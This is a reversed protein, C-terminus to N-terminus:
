YHVNVLTGVSAWNYLWAADETRLNVCGHSMPTGFNSHWYTGHLSYGEYFYMVYPVDPLFYGPGAMDDYRYKVYIHFRGTVTPHSSTGTSVTFQNVVNKGEYAAVSQSSLDVDIWREKKKVSPLTEAEYVYDEEVYIVLPYPTPTLTPEPTPTPTETPLPTNTATPTPSPTLTPTSTPTFTPTLSPKIYVGEPIRAAAVPQDPQFYRPIIYLLSLGLIAVLVFLIWPWASAKRIALQKSTLEPFGSSPQSQRSADPTSGAPMAEAPQNGQIDTDTADEKHWGPFESHEMGALSTSGAASKQELRSKAWQLGKIARESGPHVELAKQLHAIAQEPESLAALILWGDEIDPALAVAQGALDRALNLDGLSLAKRAAILADRAQQVVDDM